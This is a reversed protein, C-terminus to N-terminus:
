QGVKIRLPIITPPRTKDGMAAIAPSPACSSGEANEIFDIKARAWRITNPANMAKVASM